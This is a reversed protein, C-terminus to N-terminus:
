NVTRQRRREEEEEKRSIIHSILGQIATWKRRISLMHDVVTDPDLEIGISVETSRRSNHWADCVFISHLRM